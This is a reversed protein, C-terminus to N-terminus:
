LEIGSSKYFTDRVICTRAFKSKNPEKIMDSIKWGYQCSSLVPFEYKEEPSLFKRRNLYNIRGEGHASIGDYLLTKTRVSPPRMDSVPIKKQRRRTSPRSSLVSGMPSPPKIRKSPLHSEIKDIHESINQKFTKGTTQGPQQQDPMKLDTAQAKKKSFEKSYRLQWAFRLAAEKEINEVWFNQYRADMTVPMIYGPNYPWFTFIERVLRAAIFHIETVMTVVTTLFNSYVYLCLSCTLHLSHRRCFLFIIRVFFWFVLLFLFCNTFCVFCLWQSSRVEVPGLIQRLSKLSWTIICWLETVAYYSHVIIITSRTLM